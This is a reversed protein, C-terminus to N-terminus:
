QEEELVTEDVHDMSFDKHSVYQFLRSGGMYRVEDEVTYRAASGHVYATSRITMAQGAGRYTMFYKLNEPNPIAVVQNVEQVSQFAQEDRYDVIMQAEEESLEMFAMLIGVPCSNIDMRSLNQNTVVLLDQLGPVWRGEVNMGYFMAETVGRVMQIEEISFFPANRPSYPPNLTQYYEFEAGNVQEMDDNDTWDLIADAIEDLEQEDLGYLSFLQKWQDRNKSNISMKSADTLILCEAWGEEFEFRYRMSQQNMAGGGSSAMNIRDAENAAYDFMVREVAARALWYAKARDRHLMTREVDSRAEFSLGMVLITMAVIVWLVSILINGRQNAIAM